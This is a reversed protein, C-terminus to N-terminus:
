CVYLLCAFRHPRPNLHGGAWVIGAIAAAIGLTKIRNDCIVIARFVNQIGIISRGALNVQTVLGVALMGRAAEKIGPNIGDLGLFTNHVIPLLSYLVLGIIVTPKGAGFLVM